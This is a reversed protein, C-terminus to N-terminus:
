YWYRCHFTIHCSFQPFPYWYIPDYPQVANFQALQAPWKCITSYKNDIPASIDFRTTYWHKKVKPDILITWKGYSFQATTWIPKNPMFQNDFWISCNMHRTIRNSKNATVIVMLNRYFVKLKCVFINLADEGNVFM